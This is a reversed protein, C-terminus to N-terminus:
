PVLRGSPVPIVGKVQTLSVKGSVLEMRATEAMLWGQGRTLRVGGRLDVVQGRLDLEVTSAEAHVGRLEASVGGSARAWSVTPTSDFRVDLRPCRVALEGKTLLVKGTLVAEGTLVNLDVQEAQLTVTDGAVAVAPEGHAQGSPTEVVLAVGLACAVLRRVMMRLLTRDRRVGM